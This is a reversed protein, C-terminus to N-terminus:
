GTVRVVMWLVLLSRLSWAVTRIWNSIVLVRHAAVDFGHALINHKPVQLFATSLWIVALLGIGTLVQSLLVGQPRQWLLLFATVGEVGILPGVVFTTLRMNAIQYEQFSAGKVLGLLPYHVVQAFWTIGTMLLTAAIQTFFIIKV